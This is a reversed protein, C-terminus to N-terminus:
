GLSGLTVVLNLHHPVGEVTAQLAITTGQTNLWDLRALDNEQQKEIDQGYKDRAFCAAAKRQSVARNQRGPRTADAPPRFAESWCGECAREPKDSL